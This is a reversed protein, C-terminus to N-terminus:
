TGAKRKLEELEEELKELEMIMHPRITHAPIRGKLDEIEKELRKIKEIDSENM